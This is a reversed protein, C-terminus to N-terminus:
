RGIPLWKVWRPTPPTSMDPPWNAAALQCHGRPPPWITAALQHHAITGSRSLLTNHPENDLFFHNLHKEELCMHLYQMIDLLWLLFDRRHWGSLSITTLLHLVITKLTYTSLGTRVRIRTCIQLCKLHFSNHPAQRAVHRFFVRVTFSESWMMSSSFITDTTQSSLFVDSNGQQVRFVMEVFLTRRSANTLQLKCSRSSALVTMNYRCAVVMWASRALNQFWSATEQVHLYSSTCLTGLLSPGRNRRLKEEHQHSFCLMNEVLQERMCKCELEMHICSRMEGTTGLELHLIHGCLTKLPMLLHYIADGEHPGWGESTSGVRIAPTVRGLDRELDLDEGEGEEEDQHEEEG